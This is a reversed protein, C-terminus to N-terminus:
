INGHKPKIFTKERPNRGQADLAELNNLYRQELHMILPRLQDTKM